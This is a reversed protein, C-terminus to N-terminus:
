QSTSEQSKTAVSQMETASSGPITNLNDNLSFSFSVYLHMMAQMVCDLRIKLLSLTINLHKLCSATWNCFGVM